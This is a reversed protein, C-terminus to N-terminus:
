SILPKSRNFLFAVTVVLKVVGSILLAFASSTTRSVFAGTFAGCVLSVLFLLRRNRPRNRMEMLLPDIFLDVYASTVMATTIEPISISRAVAVQAGASFALVSLVTAAVSDSTRVPYSFQLAVAMCVLATQIFNSILLWRRQRVGFANGLQGTVLAGAVFVGLSIGVNRLDFNDKGLGAAAVALLVTNGTQNSAFCRYDPFTTADQIGTAYALLLLEAEILVEERLDSTWYRRHQHVPGIAPM